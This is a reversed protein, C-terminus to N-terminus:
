NETKNMESLVQNMRVVPTWGLDNKIKEINLSFNSSVKQFFVEQKLLKFILELKKQNINFLYAKKNMSTCIRRFLESISIDDDDSVLYISSKQFNTEICLMIASILNDIAIFSRANDIDGIPLPIGIKAILNLLKFNAKVGRGYVLPPRLVFYQMEKDLCLNILHKEGYFKSEAYINQPNLERTEDFKIKEVSIEGHVKSTSIYIFRKVGNKLAGEALLKTLTSNAEFVRDQFSKSNNIPAHAMGACHVVTHIDKFIANSLPLGPTYSIIETNTCHSRLLSADRTLIRKKYSNPLSNMLHSGIFGTAGTILIM